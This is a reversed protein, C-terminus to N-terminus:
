PSVGAGTLEAARHVRSQQDAPGALRPTILVILESERSQRRTSGFLWGAAPVSSLGPLGQRDRSREKAVLGSIAVTEGALVNIATSTRRKVFGPFAGVRVSADLQSLEVEVEAFIAGGSDARPKIQLIVGYEKYQVDTAGLGDTVPIPVEGGSVFRAMGGSRCSLTPEAVVFAMGKQQLLDLQSQLVSAISANLAFGRGNGATLSVQPGQAQSNWGLGLQKMQDRRVEVLRVDMQVMAEWGAQGVFDLVRGPFLAAVDAARQQETSSARDGQLLIHGGAIRATVSGDMPLLAQVQQLLEELGQETVTIRLSHQRGDRLWLQATTTGPSEGFLLLQGREPTALSVVKGSGLAARKLDAGLLRSEGVSLKVENPLEAARAAGLLLSLAMGIVALAKM